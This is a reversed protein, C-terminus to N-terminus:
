GLSPSGEIGSLERQLSKEEEKLAFVNIKILVLGPFGLGKSHVLPM